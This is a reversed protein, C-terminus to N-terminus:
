KLNAGIQEEPRIIRGDKVYAKNATFRFIMVEVYITKDGSGSYKFVCSLSTEGKGGIERVFYKHSATEAKIAAVVMDFDNEKVFVIMAAKSDPWKFNRSLLKDLASSYEKAGSWYRCEAAFLDAGDRNNKLLIDTRGTKRFTEENINPSDYRTELFMLINDRLEQEDKNKYLSDKREFTRCVMTIVNLMDKYIKMDFIIESDDEYQQLAPMRPIQKKYIASPSFALRTSNNVALEKGAKKKPSSNKLHLRKLAAFTEDIVSELRSNWAEADANIYPLNKFASALYEEKLKALAEGDNEPLELRIYLWNGAPNVFVIRTTWMFQSPKVSLLEAPGKFYYKIHFRFGERGVTRGASDTEIFVKEPNEISESEKLIELPEIHYKNCLYDKYEEESVKLIYEESTSAMELKLDNLLKEEYSKWGQGGFTSIKQLGYTHGLM